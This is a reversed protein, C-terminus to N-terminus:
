RATQNSMYSILGMCRGRKIATTAMRQYKPRLGTVRAPSIKGFENVLWSYTSPDKWDPSTKKASFWCSKRKSFIKKEKETDMGSEGSDHNPNKYAKVIAEQDRDLGLNVVMFKLADESIRMRREIEQNSTGDSKYMVYFYQGKRTGNQTPQAFSKVGWSDEVLVEGNVSAVADKVAQALTTQVQENAETRLV